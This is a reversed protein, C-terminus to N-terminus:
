RSTAFRNGPVFIPSAAFFHAFDRTSRPSGPNLSAQSAHTRPLFAHALCWSFTFSQSCRTETSSHPAWPVARGRSHPSAHDGLLAVAIDREKKILKCFPSSPVRTLPRTERTETALSTTRLPIARRLAVVGREACAKLIHLDSKAREWRGIQAIALANGRPKREHEIQDQSGPPGHSGFEFAFRELSLRFPEIRHM